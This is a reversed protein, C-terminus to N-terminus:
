KKVHLRWKLHKKEEYNLPKDDLRDIHAYAQQMGEHTKKPKSEISSELWGEWSWRGKSQIEHVAEDLSQFTGLQVLSCLPEISEDWAEQSYDHYAVSVKYGKWRERAEPALGSLDGKYLVADIIPEDDDDQQASKYRSVVRGVIGM